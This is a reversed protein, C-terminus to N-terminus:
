IIVGFQKEFGLKQNLLFVLIFPKQQSQSCSLKTNQDQPM